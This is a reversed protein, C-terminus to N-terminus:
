ADSSALAMQSRATDVCKQAPQFQPDIQRAKECYAMMEEFHGMKGSLIGLNSYAEANGPDFHIAKKYNEIAKDTENQHDYAYGLINYTPAFTPNGEIAWQAYRIAQAHDGKKAYALALNNYIKAPHHSFDLGKKFYRIAQDFKGLNSLVLGLNVYADAYSPDLELAKRSYEIAKDYEGAQGYEFGLNSYPRAKKPDARIADEWLHIGNMWVRNRQFTASCLLILIVFFFATFKKSDRLLADLTATVAIAFGIMPLYLRHEAIVDKIPIISSEVSLTLFFWFIGFAILRNKRYITFALIWFAIIMLFSFGTSGSFFSRSVPFDYDVRQHIPLILLGLYTRIVNAQTFFYQEPTISTTQRVAIGSDNLIVFGSQLMLLPIIALTLLFPIWKPIRNFFERGFGALFVGECLVIAFPLTFAIPKTFMAAATALFATLFDFFKGTSRARFYLLLATVYFLTALSTARQVVYSVAQTQVPHALFLLSSALALQQARPRAPHQSMQPSQFLLLVFLFVLISSALHIILNVLHYGLPRLRHLRYNLAFTLSTLFRSNSNKWILAPDTIRRLSYNNVIERHDDFVFGAGLTQGYLVVGLLILIGLALTKSMSKVRNMRYGVLTDDPLPETKFASM